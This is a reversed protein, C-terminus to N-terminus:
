QVGGAEGGGVRTMWTGAGDEGERVAARSCVSTCALEGEVVLACARVTEQQGCVLM